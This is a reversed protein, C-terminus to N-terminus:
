SAAAMQFTETETDIQLVSSMAALLREPRIPKEVVGNVGCSRYFVADSPDANATVALIPVRSATGGGSRIQRTAELGDMGPMKIDMLIIDFGGSRALDVAESGDEALEVSCGYIECLTKAVLRNTANDDVVLVCIGKENMLNDGTVDTMSLRDQTVTPLMVEFTFKAGGSPKSDARISGEMRQALQRCVALGLGAGGRRIGEETQQFPEFISELRDAAIGPGNDTVMVVLSAHDIKEAVRIQLNVEGEATFKLANGVLNNIVQGLRVRDGTLQVQKRGSFRCNLTVGKLEAHASWLRSAEDVLEAPHFPAAELTLGSAEARTLDLADNLLRLLIDGSQVITDLFPALEPQTSKRRVIEAVSLVGNLPTRIEHSMIALFRGKADLAEQVTHTAQRADEALLEMEAARRRAQAASAQLLGLMTGVGSYFGDRTVIFGHLLDSAREQLVEGCFAEVTVSGDAILPSHNMWESLPRKAWLAHGFQGAMRVLFANREIIGIPRNDADVVAIALTDPESEFRALVQEGLETPAVPRAFPAISHLIPM